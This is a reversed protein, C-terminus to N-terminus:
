ILGGSVDSDVIVWFDSRFYGKEHPFVNYTAAVVFGVDDDFFHGNGLFM